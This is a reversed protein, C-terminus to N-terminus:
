KKEPISEDVSAKSATTSEQPHMSWEIGTDICWRDWMRELFDDNYLDVPSSRWKMRDWLRGAKDTVKKSKDISLMVGTKCGEAPPMPSKLTTLLWWIPDDKRKASKVGEKSFFDSDAYGPNYAHAVYGKGEAKWKTMLNKAFILQMQKGSSYIVSYAPKPHAAKAYNYGPEMFNKTSQKAFDHSFDAVYVGPSSTMVVSADPAFFRELGHTLIFNSLFNTMYMHEFGDPGFPNDSTPPCGIGANHFLIDITKGGNAAWDECFKHCNDLTSTDLQIIHLSATPVAKLIDQKAAEAKEVNRCVMYVTAGMEALHQATAKGLGVNSGTVIALKGTLDATKLKQHSLYKAIFVKVGVIMVANYKIAAKTKTKKIFSMKKQGKSVM